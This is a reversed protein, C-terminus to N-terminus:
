QTIVTDIVAAVDDDGTHAPIWKVTYFDPGKAEVLDKVDAQTDTRRAPEGM